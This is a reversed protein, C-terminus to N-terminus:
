QKFNQFSLCGCRFLTRVRLAPSRGAAVGREEGSSATEEPHAEGSTPAPMRLVFCQSASVEVAAGRDFGLSGDLGKGTAPEAEQAAAADDDRSPEDEDDEDESSMDELGTRNGHRCASTLATRPEGGRTRTVGSVM